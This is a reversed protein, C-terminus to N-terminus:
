KLAEIACFIDCNGLDGARANTQINDFGNHILQASLDIHNTFYILACCEDHM